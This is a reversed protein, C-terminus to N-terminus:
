DMGPLPKAQDFGMQPRAESCLKHSRVLFINLPFREDITTALMCFTIWKCEKTGNRQQKWAIKIISSGCVQRVASSMKAGSGSRHGSLWRPEGVLSACVNIRRTRRRAVIFAHMQCRMCPGALLGTRRKWCKRSKKLFGVVHLKITQLIAGSDVSIKKISLFWFKPDHHRVYALIFFIGAHLFKKQLQACFSQENRRAGM